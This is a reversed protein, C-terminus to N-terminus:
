SIIENNVAYFLVGETNLYSLFHSNLSEKQSAYDKDPFFWHDFIILDYTKTPTYTYIDGNIINVSPSLYNMDNVATCLESDLEVVDVTSAGKDTACWQALVGIGLGSMLVSDFDLDAILRTFVSVYNNDAYSGGYQGETKKSFRVNAGEKIITFNDGSFDEINTKDLYGM